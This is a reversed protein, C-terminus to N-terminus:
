LKAPALAAGDNVYRPAGSFLPRQWHDEVKVAAAAMAGILLFIRQEVRQSSNRRRISCVTHHVIVVTSV